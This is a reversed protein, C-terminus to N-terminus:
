ERKEMHQRDRHVGNVAAQGAGGGGPSQRRHTRSASQRGGHLRVANSSGVREVGGVKLCKPSERNHDGSVCRTTRESLLRVAPSLLRGPWAARAVALYVVEAWTEDQRAGRANPPSKALSKTIPSIRSQRFAPSPASRSFRSFCPFGNRQAMGTKTRRRVVHAGKRFPSM